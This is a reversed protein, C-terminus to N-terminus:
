ALGCDVEFGPDAVPCMEYEVPERPRGRGIPNDPWRVGGASLSLKENILAV